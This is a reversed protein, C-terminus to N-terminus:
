WNLWCCCVNATSTVDCPQSIVQLKDDFVTELKQTKKVGAAELITQSSNIKLVSKPSLLCPFYLEYNFEVKPVQDKM